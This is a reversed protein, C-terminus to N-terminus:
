GCSNAKVERFLSPRDTPMTQERVLLLPNIIIICNKYSFGNTGCALIEYDKLVGFHLLTTSNQMPAQLGFTTLMFSYPVQFKTIHIPAMQQPVSLDQNMEQPRIKMM